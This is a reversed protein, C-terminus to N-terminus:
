SSVRGALRSAFPRATVGHVVLSIGVTLITVAVVTGAEPIQESWVITAFALSALGRPGFWALFAKSAMPEGTGTLSLIVPMMRIITLSLVAYIVESWGVHPLAEPLLMMAFLVWATMALVEGAGEAPLLMAHVDEKMAARFCLGGVFAAIYGSGHLGQAVAFILIALAPVTMSQWVHGLWHAEKALRVVKAASLSLVVGVALGIGVEEGLLELAVGEGRVAVGQELAIFLLLFPVALGDNLGSEASLGERLHAPVGQNTVVAKGLAADTAALMVGLIAAEYVSFEPFLMLALIAGLVMTLPLGLLLMRGPIRWNKRLVSLNAGAADVFLFLALTLDILLKGNGFNVSPNFWELGLPGLAVGVAVFVIPGSLSLREVKESILSYVFLLAAFCGLAFYM